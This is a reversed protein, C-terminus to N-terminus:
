REQETVRVVERERADIAADDVGRDDPPQENIEREDEADRAARLVEPEKALGDLGLFFLQFVAGGASRSLLLARPPNRPNEGASEAGPEDLLIRVTYRRKRKAAETTKRAPVATAM